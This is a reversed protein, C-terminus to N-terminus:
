ALICRLFLTTSHWAVVSNSLEREILRRVQAIDDPSLAKALHDSYSPRDGTAPTFWRALMAATVQLDSIEEGVELECHWGAAAAAAALDDVDWNTMLDDGRRYIAEEAAQWRDVLGAPLASTDALRYIRQTRQPVREALSLTGGPAILGALLRLAASKDAEDILANHGVIADFHLPSPRPALPSAGANVM